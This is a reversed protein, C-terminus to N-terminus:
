ASRRPAPWAVVHGSEVLRLWPELEAAEGAEVADLAAATAEDLVLVRPTGALWAVAVEVRGEEDFRDVGEMDEADLVDEALWARRLTRNLRNVGRGPTPPEEPVVAYLEAEEDRRPLDHVLAELSVLDADAGGEETWWGAFRAALTGSRDFHESALFRWAVEEGEAMSEWTDPLADALGELVQDLGADIQADRLLFRMGMAGVASSLGEPLRAAVEDVASLASQIAQAAQAEDGSDLLSRALEGLADVEPLLRDEVPGEGCHELVLLLRYGLDQVARRARLRRFSRADAALPGSCVSHCTRAVRHAMAELDDEHDVGAQCFREVWAGFSWATLRNWHGLLYGEADSQADIGVVPTSVPRGREVMELIAAWERALHAESWRASRLGAERLSALDEDEWFPRLSARECDLCGEGRPSAQSHRPCRRRGIDDLGYWHLVPLLEGLRAGLTAEFRTMEPHWFWGVVGHLLEHSRWKARHNPNFPSHPDDQFFSFYKPEALVGDSWTPGTGGQWVAVEPQLEEPMPLRVRLEHHTFSRGIRAALLGARAAALSGLLEMPPCGMQGLLAELGPGPRARLTADVLAEAPPLLASPDSPLSDGLPPLLDPLDLM